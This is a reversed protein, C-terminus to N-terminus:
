TMRRSMSMSANKTPLDGVDIMMEIAERRGYAPRLEDFERVKRPPLHDALWEKVAMREPAQQEENEAARKKEGQGRKGPGQKTLWKWEEEKM